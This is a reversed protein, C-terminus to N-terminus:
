SSRATTSPLQFLHHHRNNFFLAEKSLAEYLSEEGKEAPIHNLAPNSPCKSNEGSSTSKKSGLIINSFPSTLVDHNFIRPM